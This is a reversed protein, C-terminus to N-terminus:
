KRFIKKWFSKKEQVKEDEKSKDAITEGITIMEPHVITCKWDTCCNHLRTLAEAFDKVNAGDGADIMQNQLQRSWASYLLMIAICNPIIETFDVCIVTKVSIAHNGMALVFNVKDMEDLTCWQAPSLATNQHRLTFRGNKIANELENKACEYVLVFSPYQKMEAFFQGSNKDSSEKQTKDNTASAKKAEPVTEEALENLSMEKVAIWPYLRMILMEWQFLNKKGGVPVQLELTWKPHLMNIAGDLKEIRNIVNFITCAMVSQIKSSFRVQIIASQIDANFSALGMGSLVKIVTEKDIEALRDFQESSIHKGSDTTLLGCSKKAEEMACIELQELMNGISNDSEAKEYILEIEDFERSSWEIKRNM